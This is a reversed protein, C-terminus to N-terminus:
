AFALSLFLALMLRLSFSLVQNQMEPNQLSTFLWEGTEVFDKLSVFGDSLSTDTEKIFDYISSFLNANIESVKISKIATGEAAEKEPLIKPIDAAFATGKLVVLSLLTLLLRNM